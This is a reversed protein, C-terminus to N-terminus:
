PFFRGNFVQFDACKSYVEKILCHNVNHLDIIVTYSVFRPELSLIYNQYKEYLTKKEIKPHHSDILMFLFLAAAYCFICDVISYRQEVKCKYLVSNVKVLVTHKLFRLLTSPAVMSNIYLSLTVLNEVVIVINLLSM